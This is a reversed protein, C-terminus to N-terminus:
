ELLTCIFEEDNIAHQVAQAFAKNLTMIVDKENQFLVAGLTATGMVPKSFIARGKKDKIVVNLIVEASIEGTFLKRTYNSSFKVVEIEINMGKKDIKFGRNLLEAMFSNEVFPQIEEQLFPLYLNQEEKNVRSDKCQISVLIGQANPTKLMGQMEKPPYYDLHTTHKTDACGSLSLLALFVIAKPKTKM